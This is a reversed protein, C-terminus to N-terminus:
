INHKQSYHEVLERQTRFVTIIGQSACQECKFRAPEGDAIMQLTEKATQVAIEVETGSTLMMGFDRHRELITLTGKCLRRATEVQNVIHDWYNPQRYRFGDRRWPQGFAVFIHLNWKNAAMLFMEWLRSLIWLQHVDSESMGLRKMMGCLEAKQAKWGLFSQSDDAIRQYHRGYDSSEVWLNWAYHILRRNQSIASTVKARDDADDYDLGLKECIQRKSPETKNRMLSAMADNVLVDFRSRQSIIGNWTQPRSSM